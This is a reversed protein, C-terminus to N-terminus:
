IVHGWTQRNVLRSVTSDDIGFQVGLQKYTYHLRALRRIEKVEPERVKSSPTWSLRDRGLAGNGSRGKRRMDVMNDANTGLFPHLPNCCPPNDCRHLCLLGGPITGNIYEYAYRHAIVKVNRHLTFRGYGKGVCVGRWEWCKGWSLNGTGTSAFAVFSWFREDAPSALFQGKINRKCHFRKSPM